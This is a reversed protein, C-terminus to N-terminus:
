RQPTRVSGAPRVRFVRQVAGDDGLGLANLIPTCERDDRSSMCGAATKEQNVDVNADALLTALDFQIVDRQPVFPTLSVAARNPHKCAIPATSPGDAPECGTSGLHIMWGKPQGTTRLDIRAFKYGANWSWFLRTLNLPSSAVTAERHNAAFPVGLDFKVSAYDGPPVHGEVINRLEPTGSACTGEGNEFDLLAVDDTQWLGDQVLAVPVDAGARTVLRINSVYFRFDTFRIASQTTGIDAYREACSVPKGGVVADFTLTVPTPSQGAATRFALLTFVIAAVTVSRFM